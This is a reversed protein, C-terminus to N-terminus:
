EVVVVLRLIIYELLIVKVGVISAIGTGNGNRLEVFYFAGSGAVQGRVAFQERQKKKKKM